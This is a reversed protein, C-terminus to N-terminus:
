KRGQSKNVPMALGAGVQPDKINYGSYVKTSLKNKGRTGPKASFSGLDHYGIILQEPKIGYTKIINEGQEKMQRNSGAFDIVVNKGEVIFVISGGGYQDYENSVEGPVTRSQILFTPDKSKTTVAKILEGTVVNKGFGVADVKEGLWDIDTFRYQRFVDGLKDSKNLEKEKKYTINVTGDSNKYYVPIYPDKVTSGKPAFRNKWDKEKLTNGRHWNGTESDTSKNVKGTILEMDYMFHAMHEVNEYTSDKGGKGVFDTPIYNFGKRRDFTNLYSVVTKGGGRESDKEGLKVYVNKIEDDKKNDKKTKTTNIKSLDITKDSTAQENPNLIGEKTLYRIGADYWDATFQTADDITESINDIISQEKVGGKVSKTKTTSEKKVAPKKKELNLTPTGPKYPPKTQTNPQLQEALSRLTNAYYYARQPTQEVLLSPKTKDKNLLVEDAAKNFDKNAIAEKLDTWNIISGLQYTM